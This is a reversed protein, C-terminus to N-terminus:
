AYLGEILETYKALVVRRKVKMSPTLMGNETTFDEAILAFRKPREYHKFDAGQATLQAEVAAFLTPNNLLAARDEPDAGHDKAWSAVADWDPVILAVNYPKNHGYILANAVLPSLKIQEELPSPVVYKGNELKYQEKIRGTIWLFGDADFRGMDGTRFGGDETFVQANEEPLNHYGKMVNHGYVVIEGDAADGTIEHDLEVRVGPLPKGVTGIRQAGAANAAVVPSTETLGYGEFVVIGMDDIFEAVRPSLAAGGSFAYRLRGGFRERVKSFVLKDFVAHKLEVVRSTRGKERLSRRKRANVMAREFMWQQVGGAEAMRRQLGDYIRNFIRPVSILLTPRVEALNDVIKPVSEAIAMSAGRSFLTHLEVTQGFSHAWPLFSLSRDEPQIPHVIALAAVNGALNGHTLLVGKPAGTTGSTYIFGAVDETDISTLPTYVESGETLLQTWDSSKEDADLVFVHALDPLDQRLDEIADAITRNAVFVVSVGADALIYQWEKALQAEYMPVFQAGLGATAYCAVAWEVRNNAIIAVRDGKAVGHKALASRLSDVQCAFDKYTTWKWLGHRKTGFLPREAFAATSHAYIEHLTTANSQFNM